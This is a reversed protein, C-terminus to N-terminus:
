IWFSQYRDLAMMSRYEEGWGYGNIRSLDASGEISDYNFELSVDGWNGDLDRGSLSIYDLQTTIESLDVENYVHGHIHNRVGEDDSDNDSYGGM